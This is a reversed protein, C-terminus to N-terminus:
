LRSKEMFKNLVEPDMSIDNEDDHEFRYVLLNEAKSLYKFSLQRGIQNIHHHINLRQANRGARQCCIRHRGPYAMQLAFGKPIAM